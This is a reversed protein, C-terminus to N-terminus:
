RVKGYLWVFRRRLVDSGLEAGLEAHGDCTDGVGPVGDKGKFDTGLPQVLAGLQQKAAEKKKSDKPGGEATAWKYYGYALQFKYSYWECAWKEDVSNSISNLKDCADLFAADDQGAGPVEEISAANGTVWGIVSRTYNLLTRKSPKGVTSIVLESLIANAEAVRQQELYGHALDPKIYVVMDTAREPDDGYKTVLKELVPVCKDWNALEEWLRSEARLNDFSPKNTIKNSTEMLLAMERTLEGRTPDDDALAERQRAFDKYIDIALQAGWTDGPFAALLETLMAKAPKMKGTKSYSDGVMHMVWPAMTTQDDHEDYYDKSHEIVEAHMNGKYEHLCRYFRATALADRRKAEKAGTVSPFKLPDDVNEIYDVLHRYGEDRQGIRWQCVGIYVHAKEYSIASNKIQKYKEIAEEFKKQRRLREAQDFLIEDQDATSLEAAIDEAEQYLGKLLQDGPANRLLEQMSKYYGTANFSDHQIDGRWTTCGERFAMAAEFHRELRQYARGMRFFTKPGLEIRSAQDKGELAALVLKFAEIAEQNGAKKEDPKTTGTVANYKGEAAEYLVSPDVEVGPRSTIDAILKQGKVRLVNGQNESVVQQAIRLALDATAIRDRTRKHGADEAAQETEYWVGSGENLKGGVVGGADLLVGAAALLSPYGLQMSYSYGGRRQTNYLHLAYKTAAEVDGNSLLTQVLGGISLELFLWRQEKDAETLELDKIMQQWAELDSPLAQEIVAEFYIAAMEWEQEAAYVQGIMDYARLAGPTGEGALFVVDELIKRGWNFSATGDDSALGIQLNIQAQQMMVNILERKLAEPKDELSDYESTLAEILNGTRENANLLVEMRRASLKEAEEGLAEEMSIELSRAFSTSMRIYGSEAEPAASSRPNEKLFSEYAALAQEFLENRRERDREAIAGQAYIECKVVGLREGTTASVGEREIERIVEGALDVFGWEKALGKAFAIDDSVQAEGKDPVEPSGSAAVLAPSLACGLLLVSLARPLAPRPRSKM